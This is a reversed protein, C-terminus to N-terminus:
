PRERVARIAALIDTTKATTKVGRIDLPSGTRAAATVQFSEGGRRRIVVSESRACNLMEAFRRRADSYTYVKM